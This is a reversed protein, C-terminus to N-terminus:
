EEDIVGDVEGVSCINYMYKKNKKSSDCLYYSKASNKMMARRVGAEEVSSDTIMGGAEYGRSSFFFVDANIGSVFRETDSGVYAVSHILMLGGTCYNKIGLEGLAMSTKPSNTVVIIDSFKELRPVLYSVTSSADLFIVQGNQVYGEAKAAIREKSLNNQRERLMLPIELDAANRLIVGGHTRMVAGQSELADLDRRITPRSVFLLESLRNVTMSKSKMLLRLIEKQREIDFM